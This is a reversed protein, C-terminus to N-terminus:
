IKRYIELLMQVLDGIMEKSVLIQTTKETWHGDTWGKMLIIHINTDTQRDKDLEPIIRLEGADHGIKYIKNGM